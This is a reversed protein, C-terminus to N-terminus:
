GVLKQFDAPTNLVAVVKLNSIDDNAGLGWKAFAVDIGCKNCHRVDRAEDGIYLVDQPKCNKARMFKKFARKKGSLRNGHHISQVAIDHLQFFSHVVDPMNSSLVSFPVQRQNLNSLMQDAGTAFEIKSVSQRFKDFFQKKHFLFFLVIKIKKFFSVSRVNYFDQPKLSKFRSQEILDRLIDSLLDITNVLTGNFDFVIHKYKV